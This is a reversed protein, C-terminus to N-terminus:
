QAREFGMKLMERWIKRADEKSYIGVIGYRIDQGLTIMLAVHNMILVHQRMNCTSIAATVMGYDAFWFEGDNNMIHFEIRIEEPYMRIHGTANTEMYRMLANM